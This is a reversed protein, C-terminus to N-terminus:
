RSFRVKDFYEADGWTGKGTTGANLVLFSIKGLGREVDNKLMAWQKTNSVDVDFILVDEPKEYALAEKAADLSETNRDVIGVKMGQKRCHHAIALGIGSAGGTILATNGKSVVAQPTKLVKPIPPM